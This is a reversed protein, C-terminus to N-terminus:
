RAQIKECDANLTSNSVRQADLAARYQELHKSQQQIISLLEAVQKTQLASLQQPKAADGHQWAKTRVSQAAHCRSCFSLPAFQGAPSKSCGRCHRGKSIVGAPQRMILM